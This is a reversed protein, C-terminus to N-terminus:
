PARLTIAAVTAGTPDPSLSPPVTVKWGQRQLAILVANVDEARPAAATFRLTGDGDFGLDRLRLAPVPRMAALLAAAPAPFAAAGAGRRAAEALVLREAGDLDGAAPFKAQVAALAEAERAATDRDLRVIWVLMLVLGLLAAVAAMRAIQVWDAVHFFSVRAPAYRGQRLDLPARAHLALLAADLAETAVVDTGCGGGLAEVLALEGAFAAEATRALPQGGLEATVVGAEPRPLALAAPVLARVALEAGEAAALWWDMDALGATAALLRGDAAAVAVHRDAEAGSQGSLAIREAALAQAAPLDPLPKDRVPAAASPVLLTAPTAAVWPLEEGPLWARERGLAGDAVRWWRWAGGPADPLLAIVGDPAPDGLPVPQAM